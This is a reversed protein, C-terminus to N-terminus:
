PNATRQMAMRGGRWTLYSLSFSRGGKYLISALLGDGVKLCARSTGGIVTSPLCPPVFCM